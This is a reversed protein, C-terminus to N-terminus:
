SFVHNQQAHPSENSFNSISRKTLAQQQQHSILQQKVRVYVRKNRYLVDSRYHSLLQQAQLGEESGSYLDEATRTKLSLPTQRLNFILIEKKNVISKIVEGKSDIENHSLDIEVLMQLAHLATLKTLSNSQALFRKLRHLHQLGDLDTLNNSSIDLVKLNHMESCIAPDLRELCNNSINLFELTPPLPWMSEIKNGAISLKKLFTLKMLEPVEQRLLNGSLDLDTLNRFKRIESLNEIGRNVFRFTILLQPNKVESLSKIATTNSSFSNTSCSRQQPKKSTRMTRPDGRQPNKQLLTNNQPYASRSSKHKQRMQQLYFYPDNTSQIPKQPQDPQAGTSANAMIHKTPAIPYLAPSNPTQQRQFVQQQQPKSNAPPLPAFNASNNFRQDSM